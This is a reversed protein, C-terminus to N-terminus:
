AQGRLQAARRRRGTPAHPIGRLAGVKQHQQGHLEPRYVRLPAGSMDQHSPLGPITHLLLRLLGCCRCGMSRVLSM